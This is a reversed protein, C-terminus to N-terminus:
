RFLMLNGYLDRFGLIDTTARKQLGSHVASLLVMSSACCPGQPALARLIKM